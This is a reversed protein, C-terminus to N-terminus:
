SLHIRSAVIATVTYKEELFIKPESAPQRYEEEPHLHNVAIKALESAVVM